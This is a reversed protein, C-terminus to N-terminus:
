DTNSGLDLIHVQNTNKTVKRKQTGSQAVHHHCFSMVRARLPVPRLSLSILLWVAIVSHRLPKSPTHAFFASLEGLLLCCNGLCFFSPSLDQLFTLLLGPSFYSYDTEQKRQTFPLGLHLALTMCISQFVPNCDSPKHFNM